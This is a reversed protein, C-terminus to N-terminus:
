RFIIFSIGINLDLQEKNRLVGVLVDRTSWDASEPQIRAYEPLTVRDFACRGSESLPTQAAPEPHVQSKTEM